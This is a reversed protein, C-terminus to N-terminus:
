TGVEPYGSENSSFTLTGKTFLSDTDGQTLAAAVRTVKVCTENYYM